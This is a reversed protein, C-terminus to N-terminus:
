YSILTSLGADSFTVRVCPSPKGSEGIVRVMVSASCTLLTAPNSATCSYNGQHKWTLAEILLQEGQYVSTKDHTWNFEADPQSEAWCQLILTSNLEASITNDALTESGSTFYVRDPGDAHLALYKVSGDEM